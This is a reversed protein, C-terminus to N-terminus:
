GLTDPYLKNKKVKNVLNLYKEGLIEFYSLEDKDAMKLSYRGLRREIKIAKHLKFLM